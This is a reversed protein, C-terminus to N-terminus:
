LQNLSQRYLRVVVVSVALVVEAPEERCAETAAWLPEKAAAISDTAVLCEQLAVLPQPLFEAQM